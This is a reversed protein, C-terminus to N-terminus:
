QTTREIRMATLTLVVGVAVSLWLSGLGGRQFAYGGAAAGCVLGFWLSGQWIWATKSGGFFAAVLQQGMKVLAGTVYTVAISVEGNREFASNAAGMALVMLSVTYRDAGSTQCVAAGLLLLTVAGQVSAIPRESPIRRVLAGVIVGCVFLALSAAAIVAAEAHRTLEVAMRTSNGSMFSVFYGGLQLFGLADVFGAQAAMAIALTRLRRTYRIM